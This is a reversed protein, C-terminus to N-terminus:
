IPSAYELKPRVLMNYATDKLEPKCPGAAATTLAHSVNVMNTVVTHPLDHTRVGYSTRYSTRNGRM